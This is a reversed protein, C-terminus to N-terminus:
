MRLKEIDSASLHIKIGSVDNTYSWLISALKTRLAAMKYIPPAMKNIKYVSPLIM